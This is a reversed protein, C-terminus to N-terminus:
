NGRTLWNRVLQAKTNPNEGVLFGYAVDDEGDLLEVADSLDDEDGITITGVEATGIDYYRLGLPIMAVIGNACLEEHAFTGPVVAYAHGMLEVGGLAARMADLAQQGEPSDCVIVVLAPNDTLLTYHRMAEISASVADPDAEGVVPLVSAPPPGPDPPAVIPPQPQPPPPPPPAGPGVWPITPFTPPQPDPGPPIPDAPIPDVPIPDTPVPDAPPLTGNGGNKGNKKAKAKEERGTLYMGVGAGVGAAVVLGLVLAGTSPNKKRTAM